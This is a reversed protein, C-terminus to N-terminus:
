RCCRCSCTSSDISSGAVGIVVHVAISVAGQLVVTEDGPNVNVRRQGLRFQIEAKEEENIESFGKAVLIRSVETIWKELTDVVDQDTVAEDNVQQKLDLDAACRIFIGNLARKRDM